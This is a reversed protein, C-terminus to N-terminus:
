TSSPRSALMAGGSTTGNKFSFKTHLTASTLEKKKKKQHPINTAATKAKSGGARRNRREPYPKIVNKKEKAHNSLDVLALRVRSLHRAAQLDAHAGGDRHHTRSVIHGLEALREEEMLDRLRALSSATHTELLSSHSSRALLPESIHGKPPFSESAETGVDNM